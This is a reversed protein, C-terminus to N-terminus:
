ESNNLLPTYLLKYIVGGLVCVLRDGLIRVAETNGVSVAYHLLTNGDHDCSDVGLLKQDLLDRLQSM